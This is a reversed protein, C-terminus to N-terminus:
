QSPALNMTDIGPKDSAHVTEAGPARVATASTAPTTTDPTAARAAPVPAPSPGPNSAPGPGPDSAPVPAPAAVPALAPAAAPTLDPALATSMGGPTVNVASLDAILQLEQEAMSACSQAFNTLLAQSKTLLLSAANSQIGGVSKGTDDPLGTSPPSYPSGVIPTDGGASEYSDMSQDADYGEGRSSTNQTGTDSQSPTAPPQQTLPYRIQASLSVPTSARSSSHLPQGLQECYNNGMIAVESPPANANLSRLREAEMVSEREASRAVLTRRPTWDKPRANQPIQLSHSPAKDVAPSLTHPLAEHEDLRMADTDLTRSSPEDVADAKRKQGRKASAIDQAATPQRGLSKRTTATKAAVRAKGEKAVSAGKGKVAGVQTASRTRVPDEANAKVVQDAKREDKRRATRGDKGEGKGDAQMSVNTGLVSSSSEEEVEGEGDAESEGDVEHEHSGTGGAVAPVSNPPSAVKKLFHMWDRKTTWWDPKIYPATLSSFLASVGKNQQAWSKVATEWPRKYQPDPHQCAYANGQRTHLWMIPQLGGRWARDIEQSLCVIGRIDMHEHHLNGFETLDWWGAMLHHRSEGTLSAVYGVVNVEKWFEDTSHNYIPSVPKGHRLITFCTITRVICRGKKRAANKEANLEFDESRTILRGTKPDISM